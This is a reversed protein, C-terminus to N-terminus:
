GQRELYQIAEDLARAAADHELVLCRLYKLIKEREEQQVKVEDFAKGIAETMEM